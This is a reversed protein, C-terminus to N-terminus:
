DFAVVQRPAEPELFSLLRRGEETLATKARTPRLAHVSLTATDRERSHRWTGAVVGDVLYTALCEGNVARYVERYLAAPLIRTRDAHSLMTAEWKPLYRVPLTAEPTGMPQDPLDFLEIGDPGTYRDLPELAALAPDIERKRTASFQAIDARSAPGFAALYRRVLLATADPEPPLEGQWLVMRPKGHARWHGSPAVHTLPVLSRAYHLLDTARVRGGTLHLVHGKLEQASRPQTTFERLGVAVADEDVDSYRSRFETLAQGRWAAAFHGYDSGAVIHLTGRMLTSKVVDGAVLADELDGQHFEPLRAHLAIHPSPSYQAQLAVLQRVAAVATSGHDRHLLQRAFLAATLERRGIGEAGAM